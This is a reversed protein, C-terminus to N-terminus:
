KHVPCEPDNCYDITMLCDDKVKKKALRRYLTARGMKLCNAALTINGRTVILAYRIASDIVEELPRIDSTRIEEVIDIIPPPQDNASVDATNNEDTM